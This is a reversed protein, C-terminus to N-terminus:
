RAAMLLSHATSDSTAIAVSSAAQALLATSGARETLDVEPETGDLAPAVGDLTEGLAPETEDPVGARRTTM